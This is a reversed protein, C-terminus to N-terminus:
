MENGKLFSIYYVHLYENQWGLHAWIKRKQFTKKATEKKGYVEKAEGVGHM